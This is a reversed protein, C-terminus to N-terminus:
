PAPRILKLSRASFGMKAKRTKESSFVCLSGSTNIGGVFANDKLNLPIYIKDRTIGEATVIAGDLKGTIIYDTALNLKRGLWGRNAEFRGGTLTADGIKGTVSGDAHIDVSITLNKQHCWSVIIRANGEWHGVMAPTVVTKDAWLNSITLLLIVLILIAMGFKMGFKISIKM